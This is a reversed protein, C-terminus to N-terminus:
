NRPNGYNIKMLEKRTIPSYGLTNLDDFVSMVIDERKNNVYQRTGITTKGLFWKTQSCASGKVRKRHARKSGM